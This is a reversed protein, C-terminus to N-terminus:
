KQIEPVWFTKRGFKSTREHIKNGYIDVDKKYVKRLGIYGELDFGKKDLHRFIRNSIKKSSNFLTRWDNESLDKIERTPAIKSDYLVESKIINGIGSFILTQDMLADEIRMDKSKALEIRKSVSSFTTSSDLIDPAIRDMEQMIQLINDTIVLTGFNRFDSFLLDENEFEFTINHSKMIEPRDNSKYFWGSMGPKIIITWNDEFFLFIVKGKKYVTNLKLPLKSKFKNFNQPPGHHKYRGARITMNKLRKNKFFKNIYQALYLSEPGETM